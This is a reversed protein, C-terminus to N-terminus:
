KTLVMKKTEVLSGAVSLSYFYTGSALEGGNIVAQGQGANSLQFVKLTRGNVDTITLTSNSSAPPLYYNIVTSNTFPNPANQKLVPTTGLSIPGNGNGIKQVIANVQDQLSAVASKLSDIVRTLSDNAKSLQQVSKVLPM